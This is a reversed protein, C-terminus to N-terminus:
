LTTVSINGNKREVEVVGYLNIRCDNEVIRAHLEYEAYNLNLYEAESNPLVAEIKVGTREIYDLINEYLYYDGSFGVLVGRDRVSVICCNEGESFYQVKPSKLHVTYETAFCVAFVLSLSVAILKKIRASKIMAILFIGVGCLIFFPFLFNYDLHIKSFGLSGMFTVASIIFESVYRCFLGLVTSILPLGSALTFIGVAVVLPMCVPMVILNTLASVSSIYGFYYTTIPLTFATVSLSVLVSETIATLLKLKYTGELLTKKSKLLKDSIPFAFVLIGLTSFLSLMFGVDYVTYPNSLIVATLAFGLSNLPDSDKGILKGFLYLLTMLGSRKVSGSLSAFNMMFVVCLLMIVYPVKSKKGKTELLYGVLFIWATLHLGSVAMLHVVGAYKSNNYFEDSVYTKDGTLVAIMLGATDGNFHRIIIDTAKERLLSAYYYISRFTPSETTLERIKYAGLHIGQSRFYRKISESTEGTEYVTATFTVKDGIILDKHNLEDRTESFSMRLRGKVKEGSIENLKIVCYHRGNDRNFEPLECVIGCVQLNEGKCELAHIYSSDSAFLLLCAVALGSLVTPIVSVQRIKKIILSVIFLCGFGIALTLSVLGNSISSLVLLTFLMTFGFVTLPRKM